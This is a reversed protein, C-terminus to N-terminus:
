KKKSGNFKVVPIAFCRCNYDEHPNNRDGNENTIPPDDWKFTEGKKSRDGLARHMPRVPHAATGSVCGWKYENVGAAQYRTETFKAMMLSTEQRALFKAKREAVGYNERIMGVASEYRNGAFVSKQIDKRLDVIHETLFDNIWKDMNLTWEDSLKKAQDKTLQPAVTLGKVSKQFDREVKWLNTDFMKKLKLRETIEEPLIDALKRDVVDLKQEFATRSAGIAMRIEPSIKAKELKFSESGRDWKAGLEKLEESITANFKGKFKGDAYQIRGSRIAEYLDYPANKLAKGTQSFEKLIPIYIHQKFAKLIAAEIQEYGETSKRIPSLEVYDKTIM